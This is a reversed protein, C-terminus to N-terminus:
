VGSLERRRDLEAETPQEMAFSGTGVEGAREYGAILAGSPSSASRVLRFAAPIAGDGFLRKGKGLVIPAVVLRLEDILDNALLTQVLVSSGQTLLAPGDGAKLDILSAVVDPGLGRSGQWGLTGPFDTAVYKTIADFRRGIDSTDQDFDDAAPDHQVHPWHAAFIDYTRRGLLLDFPQAFTEDMAAGLAEDFYPVTWGGHEFGGTPDEDPGGPAQMVGDLSVFAATIIKRM